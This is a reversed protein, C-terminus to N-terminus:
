PECLSVIVSEGPALGIGPAVDRAVCRPAPAACDEDTACLRTCHGDHCTGSACTRTADCAAGLSLTAGGLPITCVGSAAPAPGDPQWQALACVTFPGCEADSRCVAACYPPVTPGSAGWSRVFDSTCRMGPECPHEVCTRACHGFACWGSACDTDAVCVGGVPDGDAPGITCTGVGENPHGCDGTTGDDLEACDSERTCARLCLPLCDASLAVDCGEDAHRVGDGCASRECVGSRADCDPTPAACTTRVVAGDECTESLAPGACRAAGPFLQPDDDDCDDGGCRADTAGDGDGDACAATDLESSRADSPAADGGAQPSVGCGVVLIVLALLRM